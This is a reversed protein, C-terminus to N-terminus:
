KYLSFVFCFLINDTLRLLSSEMSVRIVIKKRKIKREIEAGGVGAGAPLYAETEIPPATGCGCQLCDRHTHMM